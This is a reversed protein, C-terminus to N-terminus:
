GMFGQLDFPSALVKGRGVEGEIPLESVINLITVLLLSSSFLCLLFLFLLFWITKNISFSETSGPGGVTCFIEIVKPVQPPILIGGDM